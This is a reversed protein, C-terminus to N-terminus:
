VNRDVPTPYEDIWALGGRDLHSRARTVAVYHLMAESKDIVGPEFEMTLPNQFPQPEFFDDGLQVNNWELGKVSHCTTIAVDHKPSRDSYPTMKNCADILPGIKYVNILRVIAKLHGGGPEETFEVLEDWNKFVSLELYSPRKGNLLDRAAFAVDLIQKTGKVMAVRKGAALYSIGYTLAGGNTRTLVVDPTEMGGDTVMDDISPLGKITVGTLTHPLHKMAEEAVADGFRFSQTLYLKPGKHRLIQDTAGRWSNHTLIGDGFYNHHEDVELSVVDGSYYRREVTVEEWVHRPAKGKFKRDVNRLPLMKMGDMVNAAATPFSVRIDIKQQVGPTWLPSDALRGFSALCEEGNKKNAGLKKWFEATDVVDGDTPEFHVGPINFEHQTLIEALSAEAVSDHLSLIWVADAKERRGRLVVGFGKHQSSYMMRTRGIRYQDGRRMLYVVNKDAMNDDIRVICNHKPTYSSELGSETVVRVMEGDHKFRTIHTVERGRRWLHTNDYTVVRDGVKLNEIAVSKTRAAQSGSSIGDVVEVQTGLPQCYLCQAPDGIMIVQADTQNQVFKMVADNSDQAEDVLIVDFGKHDGSEAVLKFAYDMTFRLKSDPMIAQDWIAQALRAIYKRAADISTQDIGAVPLYVNRETIRKHNSYCFKDIAHMAEVALTYGNLILNSGFDIEKLRLKAAVERATVSPAGPKMRDEYKKALERGLMKWSAYENWGIQSTTKVTVWSMGATKFKAEADLRAQRNYVLYLIKKHPLQKAIGLATASKGSGAPAILSFSVGQVALDIAAQQEETFKM